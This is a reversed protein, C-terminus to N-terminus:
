PGGESEVLHCQMEKEREFRIMMVAHDNETGKSGILYGNM